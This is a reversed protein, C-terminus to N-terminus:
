LDLERRVEDWNRTGSDEMEQIAAEFDKAALLARLRDLLTVEELPVIAVLTQVIQAVLLM